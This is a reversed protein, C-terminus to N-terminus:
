KRWMIWRKVLMLKTISRVLNLYELISEGKKRGCSEFEEYKGFADSLGDKSLEKGLFIILTDLRNNKKLDEISIQDFVKNRIDQEHDKPLSLAIAIGQKDEEVSTIEKWVLLENKYNKYSSSKKLNRTNIKMSM